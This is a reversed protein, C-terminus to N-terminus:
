TDELPRAMEPIVRWLITRVETNRCFAAIELLVATHEYKEKFLRAMQLILLEFIAPLYWGIYSVRSNLYMHVYRPMEADFGSPISTYM